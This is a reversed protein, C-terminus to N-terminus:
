RRQRGSSGGGFLFIKGYIIIGSLVMVGVLFEAYHSRITDMFALMATEQAFQSSDYIHDVATIINPAFLILFMNMLIFLVIFFPNADVLFASVLVLLVAFVFFAVVVKDWFSIGTNIVTNFNTQALEGGEGTINGFSNAVPQQVSRLIKLGIPAVILLGIVLVAFLIIPNDLQGKKQTSMISRM